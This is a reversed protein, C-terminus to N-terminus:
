LLTIRKQYINTLIEFAGYGENLKSVHAPPYRLTDIFQAINKVGFSCDILRFMSEDNPSDGIYFSKRYLDINSLNYLTNFLEIVSQAKNYNGFYINVHINSIVANAGYSEALEIVSQIQNFDLELGHENIVVAIDYRRSFQDSAFSVFSFDSVLKNKVDKIKNLYDIDLHKSNWYQVSNNDGRYYAFAGNEGIVGDIPLTNIMMDAWGRSRGTIIWISFYERLKAMIGLVDPYIEGDNYTLTGDFDLLIFEMDGINQENFQTKNAIIRAQTGNLNERHVPTKPNSFLVNEIIKKSDRVGKVEIAMDIIEHTAAEYDNGDKYASDGIFIIKEFEKKNIKDFFSSKNSNKPFFEITNSGSEYIEFYRGFKEQAEHFVTKQQTKTHIAVSTNKISTNKIFKSIFVDNHIWLLLNPLANAFDQTDKNNVLTDISEHYSKIHLGNEFYWKDIISMDNISMMEEISKSCSSTIVNYVIDIGFQFQYKERLRQLDIFQIKQDILNNSREVLTGDFDLLILYKKMNEIM